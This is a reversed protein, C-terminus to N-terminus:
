PWSLGHDWRNKQKCIWNIHNNIREGDNSKKGGVLLRYKVAGSHFIELTVNFGTAQKLGFPAQFNLDHIFIRSKKGNSEEESVAGM